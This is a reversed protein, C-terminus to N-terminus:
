LFFAFLSAPLCAAAPDIKDYYAPTRVIDSGYCDLVNEDQVWDEYRPVSLMQVEVEPSSM